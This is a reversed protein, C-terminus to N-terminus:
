LIGVTGTPKQSDSCYTEASVSVYLRVVTWGISSGHGLAFCRRGVAAATWDSRHANRRSGAGRWGCCGLTLPVGTEFNQQLHLEPCCFRGFPRSQRRNRYCHNSVQERRARALDAVVGGGAKGRNKSPSRGCDVRRALDMAKQLTKRLGASAHSKSSTEDKGTGLLPFQRFQVDPPTQM